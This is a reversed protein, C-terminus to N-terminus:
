RRPLHNNWPLTVDVGRAAFEVLHGPKYFFTQDEDFRAMNVTVVSPFYGPWEPTTFDYNNCASVVHIGKLYAEDIWEKYQFIHESLGCGFSCNLIHYGRDIAQRVGERIIVTRSGLNAGLVRISGIQADPAIRRIVGAVATGHGYVDSGDGPKVEIQVGADVVHLDDVLTLGPLAPHDIEVGSDIVAIRVGKGTGKELARRAEDLRFPGPEPTVPPEMRCGHRSASLRDLGEGGGGDDPHREVPAARFGAPTEGTAGGPRRRVVVDLLQVCSIVGRVENLFYLPVAIMAYTTKHLKKDLTKSHKANKYVQNEVFAHESAVVLSVIGKTLPQKFGMIKETNPGSNYAVVLHQKEQDLLWISGEDARHACLNGESAELLMEDCISLFNEPTVAVGLKALHEQLAPRM